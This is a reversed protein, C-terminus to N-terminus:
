KKTKSPTSPFQLSMSRNFATSYNSSPSTPPPGYMYRHKQKKYLNNTQQQHWNQMREAHTMPICLITSISTTNSIPTEPSSDQSDPSSNLMQSRSLVYSEAASQQYNNSPTIPLVLHHRPKSEKKISSKADNASSPEKSSVNQKIARLLKTTQQAM